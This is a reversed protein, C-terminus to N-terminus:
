EGNDDGILLLCVVGLEAWLVSCNLGALAKEVEGGKVAEESLDRSIEPEKKHYPV